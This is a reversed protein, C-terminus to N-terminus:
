VVWIMSGVVSRCTKSGTMVDFMGVQVASTDHQRSSVPVNRVWYGAVLMVTLMYITCLALGTRPNMVTAGILLGTAQM